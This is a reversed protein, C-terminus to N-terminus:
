RFGHQGVTAAGKTVVVMGGGRREQNNFYKLTPIAFGRIGMAEFKFQKQNNM